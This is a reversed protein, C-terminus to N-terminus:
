IEYSENNSSFPNWDWSFHKKGWTKPYVVNSKVKEIKAIKYVNYKENDKRIRYIANDKIKIESYRKVNLMSILNINDSNTTIYIMDKIRYFYISTSENKFYYLMKSIKDYIAISYSGADKSDLLNKIAHIIRQERNEVKINNFMETFQNFFGFTDSGKAGLFDNVIGNHVLVFEKNEFPHHYKVEFGSTAFRQHTIIINSKIIEKFYKAYDIKENQKIVNDSSDCYFGEGHNNSAYSVSTVAQIFGTINENSNKIFINLNCM